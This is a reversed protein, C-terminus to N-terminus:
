VLNHLDTVENGFADFLQVDVNNTQELSILPQTTLTSLETSPSNPIVNIVSTKINSADGNIEVSLSHTTAVLIEYQVTYTGDEHDFTEITTIAGGDIL